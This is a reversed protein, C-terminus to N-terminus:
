IQDETIETPTGVLEDGDDMRIYTYYPEIETIVGSKGTRWFKVRQGVYRHFRYDCPQAQVTDWINLQKM